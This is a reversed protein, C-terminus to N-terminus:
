MCGVGMLAFVSRPILVYCPLLFSCVYAHRILLYPIPFLLLPSPPLSKGILHPHPGNPSPARTLSPVNVVVKEFINYSM